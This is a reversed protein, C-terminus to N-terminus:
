KAPVGRRRTLARSVSLVGVGLVRRSEGHDVFVRERRAAELGAVKSASKQDKTSIRGYGILAM